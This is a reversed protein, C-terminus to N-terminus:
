RLRGQLARALAAEAHARAMDDLEGCLAVYRWWLRLILLAEAECRGFSEEPLDASLLGGLRALVILDAGAQANLLRALTVCEPRQRAFCGALMARQTFAPWEDGDWCVVRDVSAMLDCLGQLIAQEGGGQFARVSVADGAHVVAVAASVAQLASPLRDPLDAARQKQLAYEVVQFDSLATLAHLSRLGTVDPECVLRLIATSKVSM